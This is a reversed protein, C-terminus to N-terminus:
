FHDPLEGKIEKFVFHGTVGKKPEAVQVVNGRVIVEHELKSWTTAITQRLTDFSDFYIHEPKMTGLSKETYQEIMYKKSGIIAM